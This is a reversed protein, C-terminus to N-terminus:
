KREKQLTLIDLVKLTPYASYFPPVATLDNKGVFALFEKRHQTVPLPPADAIHVLLKDFVGGIANVFADIYDEFSGDYTTIVALQREGLFVFRAFHVTGLRNLAVAIPNQDPPLKQLADILAKLEVFDKQSKINMVLTLPSAVAEQMPTTRNQGDLGQSSQPRPAFYERNVFDAAEAAENAARMTATPEIKGGRPFWGFNRVNWRSQPLLQENLGSIGTAHPARFM